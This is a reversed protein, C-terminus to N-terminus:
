PAVVVMRSVTDAADFTLVIGPYSWTTDSSEGTAPTGLKKAVDARRMGHAIGQTTRGGFVARTIVTELTGGADFHCTLGGRYSVNRAGGGVPVDALPEGLVKTVAEVTSQRVEVGKPGVGPELVIAKSASDVPPRAQGAAPQRKPLDFGLEPSAVQWSGDSGITARLTWRRQETFQVRDYLGPEAAYPQLMHFLKGAAFPWAAGEAHGPVSGFGIEYEKTIERRFAGRLAYSGFHQDPAKLTGGFTKFAEVQFTVKEDPKAGAKSWTRETKRIRQLMWAQAGFAEEVVKYFVFFLRGDEGAAAVLPQDAAALDIGVKPAEKGVATEGIRALDHGPADSRLGDALPVLRLSPPEVVQTEQATAPAAVLVAFLLPATLTRM